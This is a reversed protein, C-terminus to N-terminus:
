IDIAYVAIGASSLKGVCRSCRTAQSRKLTLASLGSVEVEGGIPPRASAKAFGGITLFKIEVEPMRSCPDLLPLYILM